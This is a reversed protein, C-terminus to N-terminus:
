VEDINGDHVDVGMSREVGAGTLVEVTCGCNGVARGTAAYLSIFLIPSIPLLISADSADPPKFFSRSLWRGHFFSLKQSALEDSPPKSARLKIVNPTCLASHYSGCDDQLVILTILPLSESSEQADSKASLSEATIYILLLVHTM